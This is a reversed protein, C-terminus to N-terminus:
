KYLKDKKHKIFPFEERIKDVYNFDIDCIFYGENGDLRNLIDGWPSVVISNGYSVYKDDLNRSPACGITYVQNDVARSKFLLEWHAPGTKMNFAAPVIIAKAGENVMMNFIEPFRLDYCICLGFKGFETEFTTVKDGSSITKSEQIVKDGIKMDFLHIKRHKGIMNGSRDFVYSTNYVKNNEDLEPISGAVLYINHLKALKSLYTFTADGEHEAYLPFKHTIYPCCFMEPLIAIDVKDEVVKNLFNSLTELNKIKDDVINMQIVALKCKNM